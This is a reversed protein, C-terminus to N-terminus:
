KKSKDQFVFELNTGLKANNQKLLAEWTTYVESQAIGLSVGTGLDIWNRARTYNRLKPPM